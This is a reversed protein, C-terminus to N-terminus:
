IQVSVSGAVLVDSMRVVDSVVAVGGELLSAIGSGSLIRNRGDDDVPVFIRGSVRSVVEPASQINNIYKLKNEGDYGTDSWFGKQQMSGTFLNFAETRKSQKCLAGFKKFEACGFHKEFVDQFPKKYYEKGEKDVMINHLSLYLDDGLYVSLRDWTLNDSKIPKDEKGCKFTKGSPMFSDLVTKQTTMLETPYAKVVEGTKSDVKSIVNDIRVRCGKAYGYITDDRKLFSKNYVRYSPVPREGMLVHLLNSVHNVHITGVGVNVRPATNGKKELRDVKVCKGTEPCNYFQPNKSKEPFTFLKADNFDIVVCWKKGTNM